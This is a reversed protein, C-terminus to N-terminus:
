VKKGLAKPNALWMRLCTNCDVLPKRISKYRPHKGCRNYDSFSM